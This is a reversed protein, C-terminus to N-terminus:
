RRSPARNRPAPTGRSRPMREPPAMPQAQAVLAARLSERALSLARDLPTAGGEICAIRFSAVDTREAVRDRLATWGPVDVPFRIAHYRLRATEAAALARAAREPLGFAIEHAAFTELCCIMLDHDGVSVALAIAEDLFRAATRDRREVEIAALNQYAHAANYRNGIELAAGLGSACLRAAGDYDAAYYACLGLNLTTLGADAVAEASEFRTRAVLFDREAEALAGRSLHTAAAATRAYASLYDNGARAFVDEAERALALSREFEGIMRAANALTALAKGIALADGTERVRELVEAYMEYAQHYDGLNRTIAALCQLADGFLRADAIGADIGRRLWGAESEAIGRDTWYRSVALALRVGTEVDLADDILAGLAARVDAYEVELEAFHEHARAGRMSEGLEVYRRAYYFAHARRAASGGDSLALRRSAYERISDLFNYRPKSADPPPAVLSQDVLSGVDDLARWLDGGDDYAVAAAAELTWSGLFVSLRAFVDREGPSLLEFSWDYTALLTRRHDAAEGRRELVHFREGLMEELQVVTLTRLRAAALELALPIGELRRCVGVAAALAAGSVDVDARAGRAREVFLRVADSTLADAGHAGAEPLPLPQLRVISEGRAGLVRRSAALIALKPHAVALREVLRACAAFTGECNDLVLLMARGRVCEDLERRAADGSRVFAAVIAAELAETRDIAGLDVFFIGDRYREDDVLSWAVREALRTKGVGPPGVITVLRRERVLEVLASTERARGVFSTFSSPLRAPPPREPSTQALREFLELTEPLPETQLDERLASAFSRYTQLAGARDGAAHRVIMAERVLEERWPELALARELGLLLRGSDGRDRARALVRRGASVALARLRRRERAAWEDGLTLCFDEGHLELAREDDGAALAAEFDWLDVRVNQPLALGIRSRGRVFSAAIGAASLARELHYIHRRLSARAQEADLEPWLADAAEDRAASARGHVLLYALLPFTRPPAGLSSDM